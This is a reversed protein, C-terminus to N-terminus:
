SKSKERKKKLRQLGIIWFISDSFTECPLSSHIHTCAHAYVSLCKIFTNRKGWIEHYVHNPGRKLTLLQPLSSFVYNLLRHKMPQVLFCILYNALSQLTSTVKLHASLLPLYWFWWINPNNHRQKNDTRVFQYISYIQCMFFSKISKHHWQWSFEYQTVSERASLLLKFIYAHSTFPM